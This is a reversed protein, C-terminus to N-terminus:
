RLLVSTVGRRVEFEGSTEDVDGVLAFSTEM